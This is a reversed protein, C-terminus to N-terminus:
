RLAARINFYGGCVSDLWVLSRRGIQLLEGCAQSAIIEISRILLCESTQLFPLIRLRMVGNSYSAAFRRGAECAIGLLRFLQVSVVEIMVGIIVRQPECSIECDM